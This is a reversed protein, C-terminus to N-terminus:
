VQTMHYRELLYVIVMLCLEILWLIQLACKRPTDTNNNPSLLIQMNLLEQQPVAPKPDLM